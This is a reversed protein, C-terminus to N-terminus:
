VKNVADSYVIGAKLTSFKGWFELGEHTFLTGSLGTKWYLEAPFIGQYALNHVTFLSATGSFFPDDKYADKLYAAVLGTQWDNCHIVDPKFGIAKAAEMIGRSFFTFRDLNDFYDGEPAGYIGSRDFFEDCKLFYVPMSDKTCKLIRPRISEKGLPVNVVLGTDEFDFGSGATDRYFPLILIVNCGLRGLAFPLSGAVDALGGTKSFPIAESSAFIVNLAM